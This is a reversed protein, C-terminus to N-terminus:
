MKWLAVIWVVDDHCVSFCGCLCLALAARLSLRLLELPRRRCSEACTTSSEILDVGGTPLTAPFDYVVERFVVVPNFWAWSRTWAAGPASSNIPVTLCTQTLSHESVWPKTWRSWVVAAAIQQLVQLSFSM